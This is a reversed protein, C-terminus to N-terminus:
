HFKVVATQVRECNNSRM